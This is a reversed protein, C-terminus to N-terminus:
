VRTSTAHVNGGTCAAAAAHAVSPPCLVKFAAACHGKLPRRKPAVTGAAGSGLQPQWERLHKADDRALHGKREAVFDRLERETTTGLADKDWPESCPPCPPLALPEPSYQQM